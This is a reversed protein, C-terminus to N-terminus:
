QTKGGSGARQMPAAEDATIIRVRRTRRTTRLSRPGAGGPRLGPAPFRALFCCPIYATAETRAGGRGGSAREDAVLLPAGSERPPAIADVVEPLTVQVREVIYVDIHYVHTPKASSAPKRGCGASCAAVALCLWSRRVLRTRLGRM